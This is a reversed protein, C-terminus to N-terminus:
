SASSEAKKDKRHTRIFNILIDAMLVVSMIIATWCIIMTNRDYYPRLEHFIGTPLPALMITLMMAYVYDILKLPRDEIFALDGAGAEEVISAAEAGAGAAPASLIAALLVLAM